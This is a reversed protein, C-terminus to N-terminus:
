FYFKMGIHAKTTSLNVTSKYVPLNDLDLPNTIYFYGFKGYYTKSILQWRYEKKPAYFYQFGFYFGISPSVKFEIDTGLNAGFILDNKEEEFEKIQYEFPFWEVYHYGNSKLWVGGYGIRTNLDYTAIYLTPGGYLNISLGTGLRLVVLLDLNIPVSNITGSDTFTKNDSGGRGDWWTWSFKYNSTLDLEQKFFSASIFWGLTPSSLKLYGISFDTGQKSTSAAEVSGSDSLDVYYATNGTWYYNMKDIKLEGAMGADFFLASVGKYAQIDTTKKQIKKKLKLAENAPLIRYAEDCKDAATIYNKNKFEIRAENLVKRFWNNRVENKKITIENSEWAKEAESLKDIAQQSEGNGALNEAEELLKKAKMNNERALNRIKGLIFQKDEGYFNIEEITPYGPHETKIFQLLLDQLSFSKELKFSILYYMVLSKYDTGPALYMFVRYAKELEKWEGDKDGVARAINARNYSNIGDEYTQPILYNFLCLSLFLYPWFIRGTRM